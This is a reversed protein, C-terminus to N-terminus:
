ASEAEKVIGAIRQRAASSIEAIPKHESLMKKTKERARERIDKRGAAEWDMRTRKDFLKHQYFESLYFNKTHRLGLFSGGSGVSAIENIALREEDFDIGRLLRHIM